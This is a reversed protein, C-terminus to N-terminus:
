GHFGEATEPIIDRLAWLIGDKANRDGEILIRVGALDIQSDTGVSTIIALRENKLSDTLYHPGSLCASVRMMLRFIFWSYEAM